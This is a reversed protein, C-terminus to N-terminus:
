FSVRAIGCAVVEEATFYGGAPDVVAFLDVDGGRVGERGGGSGEVM